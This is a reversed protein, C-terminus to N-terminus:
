ANMLAVFSKFDASGDSLQMTIACVYIYQLMGLSLLLIECSDDATNWHVGGVGESLYSVLIATLVATLMVGRAIQRWRM